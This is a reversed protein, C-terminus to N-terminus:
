QWVSVSFSRLRIMIQGVGQQTVLTIGLTDISTPAGAASMGSNSYVRQDSRNGIKLAGSGVSYGLGAPAAASKVGCFAHELTFLTTANAPWYNSYDLPTALVTSQDGQLHGPTNLRVGNLTTNFQCTVPVRKDTSADNVGGFRPGIAIAWPSGAQNTNSGQTQNNMPSLPVYSPQVWPRDFEARLLLRTAVPLAGSHVYASHSADSSSGPARYVSLTLGKSDNYSEPNYATGSNALQMAGWNKTDISPVLNGNSFDVKYIQVPPM